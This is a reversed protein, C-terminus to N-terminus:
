LYSPPTDTCMSYFDHNIVPRCMKLFASNFSYPGPARHAHIEKIVNDIEAHMFPVMFLDLGEVKHILSKLNFRMKNPSSTGLRKSLTFFYRNREQAIRWSIVM